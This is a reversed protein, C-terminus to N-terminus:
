LDAENLYCVRSANEAARRAAAARSDTPTLLQNDILRTSGFFVALALLATRGDAGGVRELPQLTEADVVEAYDVRA